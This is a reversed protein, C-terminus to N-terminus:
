EVESAAAAMDTEILEIRDISRVERSSISDSAPILVYRGNVPDDKRDLLMSDRRDNRNLIESLSFISRYGEKSHIMVIWRRLNVPLSASILPYQALIVDKLRYAPLNQIGNPGIEQVAGGDLYKNKGISDNIDTIITPSEFNMTFTFGPSYANGNTEKPITKHFSTVTIRSPRDVFRANLRDATCILRPVKPLWITKSSVPNVGQISQTVLIDHSDNNFIEGWSFVAKNYGDASEVTIYLDAPSAFTNAPVKKIKKISLIDHLSYGRVLYEGLFENRGHANIEIFTASRLPLQTLDVPGPKEVEGRISLKKLKFIRISSDDPPTAHDNRDQAASPSLVLFLMLLTSFSKM